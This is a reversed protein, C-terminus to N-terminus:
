DNSSTRQRRSADLRSRRWNVRLRFLQNPGPADYLWHLAAQLIERQRIADGPEGFPDGYPFRVYLTRPVGTAISIYPVMTISVTAIGAEEIANQVLGV